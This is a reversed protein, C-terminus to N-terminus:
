VSLGPATLTVVPIVRPAAKEQYEAFIPVEPTVAAYLRDHEAAEAVAATAPFTGTGLEVTVEPHAVLNHFWAPHKPAGGASAMVFIREGDPFCRLPTTRRAGTRAGTTTLLILPVDGFSAVKGSNAHFEAIIQDNYNPAM